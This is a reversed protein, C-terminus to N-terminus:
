QNNTLNKPKAHERTWSYMEGIGKFRGNYKEYDEVRKRLVRTLETGDLKDYAIRLEELLKPTSVNEKKSKDRKEFDMETSRTGFKPQFPEEPTLPQSIGDESM